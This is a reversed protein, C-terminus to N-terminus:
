SKAATVIHAPRGIKHWTFHRPQCDPRGSIRRKFEASGTSGVNFFRMAGRTGRVSGSLGAQALHFTATCILWLVSHVPNRAAIVMFAAAIAIFAFLYFFFAELGTLM